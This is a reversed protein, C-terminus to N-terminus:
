MSLIWCFDKRMAGGGLVVKLGEFGDFCGTLAERIRLGVLVM